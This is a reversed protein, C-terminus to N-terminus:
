PKGKHARLTQCIERFRQVRPHTSSLGGHAQDGKVEDRILETFEELHFEDVLAAIAEQLSM